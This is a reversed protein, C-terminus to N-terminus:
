LPMDWIPYWESTEQFTPLDRRVASEMRVELSHDRSEEVQDADPVFPTFAALRPQYVWYLKRDREQVTDRWRFPFVAAVIRDGMGMSGFAEGLQAAGSALEPLHEAKMAAWAHGTDDITVDFKFRTRDISTLAREVEARTQSPTQDSTPRILVGVEGSTFTDLDREFRQEANGMALM